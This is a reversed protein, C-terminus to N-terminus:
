ADPQAYALDQKAIPKDTAVLFSLVRQRNKIRVDKTSITENKKM